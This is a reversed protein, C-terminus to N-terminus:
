MTPTQKVKPVVRRNKARDEPSDGDNIPQSEGEAETTIRGGAIGKTM